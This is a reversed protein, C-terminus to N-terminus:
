ICLLCGGIESLYSPPVIVQSTMMNKNSLLSFCDNVGGKEIQDYQELFVLM